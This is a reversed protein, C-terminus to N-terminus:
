GVVFGVFPEKYINQKGGNLRIRREELKWTAFILFVEPMGTLVKWLRMPFM